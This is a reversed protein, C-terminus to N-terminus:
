FFVDISWRKGYIRIAEENSLDLDTTILALWQKSRNRDRVFIIKAEIPNGNNDEGITVVASTLIKAKGRRKKLSKYISKVSQKKGNYLYHIKSTKKIMAITKLNLAALNTITKPYAFWSDFLIYDAKVGSSIAQKLLAFMVETSKSIAELRLKYGNSRKDVDENAECIRNKKKASSLLSFAVPIFSNGDSWGVTLMRFGRKYKGDTHDRVKSLLEVHKSRSRNFFSDDVIFVNVRDDNTLSEIKKTIVSTSLLLLFKRWNNSTSNLFRYVVDKGFKSYNDQSNLTRTFSKGSFLLLFIFKFVSSCAIGKSKYFNSDKLLAGIKFEKFFKDIISSLKTNSRDLM